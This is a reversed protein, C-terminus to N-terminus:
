QPRGNVPRSTITGRQKYDSLIFVGLPSHLLTEVERQDRINEPHFPSYEDISPYARETGRQSALPSPPVDQTSSIRKREPVSTSNFQLGCNNSQASIISFEGAKTTKGSVERPALRPSGFRVSGFRFYLSCQRSLKLQRSYM